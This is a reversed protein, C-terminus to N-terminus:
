LVVFSNIDDDLIEETSAKARRDYAPTCHAVNVVNGSSGQAASQQVYMNALSNTADLAVRLYVINYLM